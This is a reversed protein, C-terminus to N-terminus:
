PKSSSSGLVIDLCDFGAAVKKAKNVFIDDDGIVRTTLFRVSGDIFLVNQGAGGHNQSNGPGAGPPPGDSMLAALNAPQGEGQCPPHYGTEDKYGLSYAYCSTFQATQFDELPMARAETLSITNPIPPGNGPCRVSAKASLMGADALIPIVMGAADHPAQDAINPFHRHTDRYAHLATFFEHLNNQCEIRAASGRIQLLASAGLGLFTLLLCAAVLVDIRRWWARDPAASPEPVPVPARPLECCCQEAIMTITRVVLDPPPAPDIKDAALPELVQRLEDLRRRSEPHAALAAEFQRQEREELGGVLYGLLNADLKPDPEYM